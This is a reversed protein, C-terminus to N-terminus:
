NPRFQLVKLSVAAFSPFSIASFLNWCELSLNSLFLPRGFLLFM